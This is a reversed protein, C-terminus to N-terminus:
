KRVKAKLTERMCSSCLEPLPREPRKKTKAIKKMQTPRLRARNLKGACKGCKHHAVKKKRFRTVNKGGPTLKKSKKISRSRLARRM